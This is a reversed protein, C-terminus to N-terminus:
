LFMGNDVVTEADLHVEKGSEDCARELRAAWLVMAFSIFLFDNAAHKGICARKGFGYVRHGDGHYRAEEPGLIPRGVRDLFREPNFDAADDSCTAPDHHCQWLNVMCISGKPIFM